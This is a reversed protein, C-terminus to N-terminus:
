PNTASSPQWSQGNKLLANLIVLLKRMCAVIVVKFPKGTGTLRRYLAAIVPNHHAATIAAMYLVKRVSARGGFCRRKGKWKGSERDFPALGALAAIEQRNANGLEPLEALLTSAVVPGIGAVSQLQQAKGRWDSDDDILKAIRRDLQDIMANLDRILNKILRQIEKARAQELRTQEAARLEVLQRRRTVLEDLLLRNEPPRPTLDPRCAQGFAALLQADLADNKAFRNTARAFDRTQRPNVLAVPLGADMLDIALRREYGGSHEIVVVQPKLALLKKALAAIAQPQNEVTFLEGTSDVFVDFKDKAADVGICPASPNMVVERDQLHSSTGTAPYPGGSWRSNPSIERRRRRDRETAAKASGLVISRADRATVRPAGSRQAGRIVADDMSVSISENKFM